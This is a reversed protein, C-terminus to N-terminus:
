PQQSEPSHRSEWALLAQKRELGWRYGGLEGTERIVRHCPILVALANAGVATGVARASGPQGIGSALTGYSALRGEPIRLLAEWVKVQFNTGRLLLHLPRPQGPPTRPFISAALESARHTDAFVRAEPWATALVAVPDILAAQNDIFELHCVGRGSDGILAPGFPTDTIGCRITIGAGRAAAEGPTVADCTLMLDHLRGPGSLGAGLACALINRSEALLRRAHNRTMVQLFRKPSIGAWQSFLRQLHFPSLHLAAALEGLGPQAAANAHLYRIAAAVTTYAKHDSATKQKM